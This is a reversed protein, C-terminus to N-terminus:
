KRMIKKYCRYLYYIVNELRFPYIWRLYHAMYFPIKERKKFLRNYLKLWDVLQYEYYEDRLKEKISGNGLYKLSEIGWNTIGICIFNNILSRVYKEKNEEKSDRYYEIQLKKRLFSIMLYKHENLNYKYSFYGDKREGELNKYDILPIDWLKELDEKIGFFYWDNINFYKEFKCRSSCVAVIREEVLKWEIDFESFKGYYDLFGTNQIVSDTRIKLVYRRTANKIGELTSVIARNMNNDLLIGEENWLKGAGPDKSFIVKDYQLGDVKSGEWTSLIVEAGPLKEYISKLCRNTWDNYIAGSVVVSIENNKIRERM